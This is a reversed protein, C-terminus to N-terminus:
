DGEEIGLSEVDDETQHSEDDDVISSTRSGDGEVWDSDLWDFPYILEEHYLIPFLRVNQEKALRHLDLPKFIDRYHYYHLMRLKKLSGSTEQMLSRILERSAEGLVHCFGPPPRGRPAVGDLMVVKVNPPMKQRILYQFDSGVTYEGLLHSPNVLLQRMAAFRSFDMGTSTSAPETRINRWPLKLVKLSERSALLLSSFEEPTCPLRVEHHFRFYQLSRARVLLKGLAAVNFSCVEVHLERLAEFPFPEISPDALATLDLYCLRVRTLTAHQFFVSDEPSTKFLTREASPEDYSDHMINCTFNKINPKTCVLANLRTKEKASITKRIGEKHQLIISELRPMEMALLERVAGEDLEDIVLFHILTCVEPRRNLMKVLGATDHHTDERTYIRFYFAPATLISALRSTAMLPELHRIELQSTVMSFLEPALDLLGPPAASVSESSTM